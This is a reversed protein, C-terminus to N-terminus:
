QIILDLIFHETIFEGSKKELAAPPTFCYYVFSSFCGCWGWEWGIMKSGKPGRCASFCSIMGKFLGKLDNLSFPPAV